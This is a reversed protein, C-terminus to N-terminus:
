LIKGTRFSGDKAFDTWMKLMRRSNKEFEERSMGTLMEAMIWDKLSGFLFPLEICHCSKLPNGKPYWEILYNGAEVGLANLRKVYDKAPRIFVKTSIVREVLKGLIPYLRPGLASRIFISSDQANYGAIIKVGKRAISEPCHCNDSLVPMFSMGTKMKSVAKQARLIEDIDAEYIDKGLERIFAASIRSAEEPSIRIGLPASQLLAKNFLPKDESCAILAAISHAGASQGFLTINDSDGGFYSINRHIWRLATQQDKLGLNAIGKEPLWLYGLAGLRYSIRVVILQGTEVLRDATYRPDESGGTLYAGGHIWVMVPLKKHDGEPIYVSLCLRGEEINMKHSGSSMLSSLRSESQPCFCGENCLESVGPIFEEEVAEAFRSYRAYTIGKFVKM